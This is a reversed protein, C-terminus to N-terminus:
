YIVSTPVFSDDPLKVTDNEPKNIREISTIKICPIGDTYNEWVDLDTNIDREGEQIYEIDLIPYNKINTLLAQLTAKQLVVNDVYRSDSLM